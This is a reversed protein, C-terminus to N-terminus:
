WILADTEGSNKREYDDYMTKFHRTLEPLNENGQASILFLKSGPSTKEIHKTFADINRKSGPLDTKTGVIAYGRTSLGKKFQELEFRLQEFDEIPDESSLDVVYLLCVCRQVHKLFSIGLGRNKHSDEILGPLDSIALQTYDDYEIVGVQPHLTTFPYDGIKVCANTLRSLLTSKGANPLGILGVHAYLKMELDYINQEGKAGAQAIRPHRNTNSLFFHNGKGGAGGRAAIFMSGDADLDALIERNEWTTIDHHGKPLARKVNTGVPVKVYVHEANRGFLDKGEARGGPNGKYSSAIRSLSKIQKDAVLVIHGGCGGDGGDPGAFENAFLHLFSICGNAGDGARFSVRKTDIFYSERKFKRQQKEEETEAIKDRSIGPTISRNCTSSQIQRLGPFYIGKWKHLQQTGVLKNLGHIASM